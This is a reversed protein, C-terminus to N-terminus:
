WFSDRRHHANTCHRVSGPVDRVHSSIVATEDLGLCSVLSLDLNFKTWSVLRRRSWKSLSRRWLRHPTLPSGFRSEDDLDFYQSRDLHHRFRFVTLSTSCSGPLSPSWTRPVRGECDLPSLPSSLDKLGSRFANMSVSCRGFEDCERKSACLVPSPFSLKKLGVRSVKVNCFCSRHGITPSSTSVEPFRHM